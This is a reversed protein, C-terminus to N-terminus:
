APYAVTARGLKCSPAQATSGAPHVPSAQALSRTSGQLAAKSAAYALEDAM